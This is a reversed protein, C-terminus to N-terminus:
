SIGAEPVYKYAVVTVTYNPATEKSTSIKIVVHQKYYHNLSSMFVDGNENVYDYSYVEGVVRYSLTYSKNNVIIAGTEAAIRTVKVLRMRNNYIINVFINPTIPLGTDIDGSQYCHIYSEFPKVWDDSHVISDSTFYFVKPQLANIVDNITYGGLYNANLNPCMKTSSVSIPATRSSVTSKIQNSVNLNGNINSDGDVYLKYNTSALDSSGITVNGSSNINLAKTRSTGVHFFLNGGYVYTNYGQVAADYGIAFTNNNTFQAMLLSTGDTNKWSLAANNDITLSGNVNRTGDFSQGWITRATQLKTANSAYKASGMVSPTIITGSPLSSLNDDGISIINDGALLIAMLGYYTRGKGYVYLDLTSETSSYNLVGYIEFLDSSNNTRLTYFPTEGVANQQYMQVYVDASDATDMSTTTRVSVKISSCYGSYRTSIKITAFKIYNQAVSSTNSITTSYLRNAAGVVLEDPQKGDLLDADLGSGAGDNDQDWIKTIVTSDPNIRYLSSDGEKGAIGAVNVSNHKFRIISYKSTNTETTNNIVLGFQNDANINLRNSLTGGTLPLYNVLKGDVININTQLQEEAAIARNYETNINDANAQEAKVARITEQSLSQDVTNISEELESSDFIGALADWGNETYVVNTGFPYSEGNLTFDNTINWADGVTPNTPLSEFTCSGKVRYIGSLKADIQSKTYTNSKDAKLDLETEVTTVHSTIRTGLAAEETTARNIEKQLDSQLAFNPVNDIKNYDLSEIDASIVNNDITINDGATLKPQYQTKIENIAKHIASSLSQLQDKSAVPMTVSVTTNNHKLMVMEITDDSEKFQIDEIVNVVDEEDLKGEIDDVTATREFMKNIETKTYYDYLNVYGGETNLLDVWNEGNHYKIRGGNPNSTIDVWYDVELPNPQIKQKSFKVVAM